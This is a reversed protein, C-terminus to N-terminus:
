SEYIYTRYNSDGHHIMTYDMTQNVRTHTMGSHKEFESMALKRADSLSDYVIERSVLVSKSETVYTMVHFTPRKFLSM